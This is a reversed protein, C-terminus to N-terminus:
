SIEGRKIVIVEDACKGRDEPISQTTQLQQLEQRCLLFDQELQDYVHKQRELADKSTQYLRKMEQLQAHM